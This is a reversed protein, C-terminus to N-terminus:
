LGVITVQARQTCLDFGCDVVQVAESGNQITKPTCSTSNLHKKLQPLSDAFYVVTSQCAHRNDSKSFSSQFHGMADIGDVFHAVKKEKSVSLTVLQNDLM